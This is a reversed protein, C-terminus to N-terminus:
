SSLIIPIRRGSICLVKLASIILELWKADGHNTVRKELIRYFLISTNSSM